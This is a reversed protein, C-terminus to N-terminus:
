LKDKGFFRRQNITLTAKGEEFSMLGLSVRRLVEEGLHVAHWPDKTPITLVVGYLEQNSLTELDIEKCYLIKNM